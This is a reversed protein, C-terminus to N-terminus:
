ERVKNLERLHKELVADDIEAAEAPTAVVRSLGFDIFKVDVREASGRVGKSGGEGVKVFINSAHLDGHVISHRHLKDMAKLVANVVRTRDSSRWRWHSTKGGTLDELLVYGKARLNDMFAYTHDEDSYLAHVRPALSLKEAVKKQFLIENYFATAPWGPNRNWKVVYSYPDRLPAEVVVVNGSM